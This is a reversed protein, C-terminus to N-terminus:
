AFREQKINRRRCSCSLLKSCFKSMYSNDQYELKEHQSVLKGARRVDVFSMEEKELTEKPM